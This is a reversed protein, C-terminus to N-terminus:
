AALAALDEQDNNHPLSIDRDTVDCLILRM